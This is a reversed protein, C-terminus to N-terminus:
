SADRCRSCRCPVPIEDSLKRAVGLRVRLRYKCCGRGGGSEDDPDCCYVAGNSDAEPLLGRRGFGSFKHTTTRGCIVCAGPPPEELDWPLDGLAVCDSM